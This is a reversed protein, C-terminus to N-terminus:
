AAAAADLPARVGEARCVDVLENIICEYGDFTTTTTIRMMMTTTSTFTSLRAKQTLWLRHFFFKKPKTPRACVCECVYMHTYTLLIHIPYPYVCM